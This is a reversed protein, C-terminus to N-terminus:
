RGVSVSQCISFLCVYMILCSCFFFFFSFCVPIPPPSASSLNHFYHMFLEDVTKSYSSNCLFVEYCKWFPSLAGEQVRRRAGMYCYVEIAAAVVPDRNEDSSTVVRSSADYYNWHSYTHIHRDTQLVIVKSLRSMSFNMKTQTMHRWPIGTFNTPRHSLWRTLTLAVAAFLAFNLWDILKNACYGSNVCYLAYLGSLLAM